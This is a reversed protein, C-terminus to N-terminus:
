RDLDYVVVMILIKSFNGMHRLRLNGPMLIASVIFGPTIKYLAVSHTQIVPTKANRLELLCPPKSNSGRHQKIKTLFFCGLTALIM